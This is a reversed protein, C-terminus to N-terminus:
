WVRPRFKDDNRIVMTEGSQALVFLGCRYAYRATDDTVVMGAVAGMIRVDRLKPFLRRIKEIRVLHEDVDEVLLRSKCEVAIAEADDVVLLDIEASEGNREVSVEPYVEHVDLGRERFLRVVAPRVMYQVFEGLRNGLEGIRRSVTDVLKRTERLGQVAEKLERSTEQFKRDTDQFKRDTDQFKRDTDQFKRDTERFLQKVDQFFGVGEEKTLYERSEQMVQVEKHYKLIIYGMVSLREFFIQTEIGRAPRNKDPWAAKFSVFAGDSGTTCRSIRIRKMGGFQKRMTLAPQM